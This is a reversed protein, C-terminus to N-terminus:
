SSRRRWRWSRRDVWIHFSLPCVVEQTEENPQGGTTIIWVQPLANSRSGGTYLRDPPILNALAATNKWTEAISLLLSRKLDSM